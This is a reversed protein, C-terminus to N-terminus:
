VVSAELAAVLRNPISILSYDVAFLKIDAGPASRGSAAHWVREDALASPVRRGM